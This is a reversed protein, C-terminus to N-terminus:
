AHTHVSLTILTRLEARLMREEPAGDPENTLGARHLAQSQM